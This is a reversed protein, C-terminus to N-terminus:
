SRTYRIRNVSGETSGRTLYYLTGDREVELDVPTVLGTAFRRATDSGPDYRKIWGGCLDAFFYDGVYGAPFQVKAPNYFAGGTISCIPTDRGHRYAYIPSRFRPDTEPGEFRPWGYNAGEVGRNIEEWTREGVDNIFITGAGPKIAFKFPNRLGLAWIARNKGSAKNYFPNDTPITGDKNIRLIKGKLNSLSQANDPIQNDGTSVYLKDRAGFQITGGNHHLPRLNNLRFILKRSGALPKNGNATYRIIRNNAPTTATPEHTYFLYVFHNSAFNPDFTVGLLGREGRSDVDSSIDVFTTMRGDPKLVRLRGGQQAVFLRGDPAFEMDTPRTLGGVVLSKTFGSPLQVASQAPTVSLALSVVAFAFLTGALVFLIPGRSMTDERRKYRVLLCLADEVKVQL